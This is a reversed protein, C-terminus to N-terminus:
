SQLRRHLHQDAPLLRLRAARRHRRERRHVCVPHGLLADQAGVQPASLQCLQRGVRHQRLADGGDVGDGREALGGAGVHLLDGM